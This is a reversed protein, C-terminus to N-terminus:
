FNTTTIAHKADITNTAVAKYTDNVGTAYPVIYPHWDLYISGTSKGNKNKIPFIFMSTFSLILAFANTIEVDIIANM